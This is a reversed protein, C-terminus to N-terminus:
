YGILLFETGAAPTATFGGTLTIVKTTGNYASVKKVQHILAGNIFLVLCDKWYDTVTEARDTKFVTTSNGADAVVFGHPRFYITGDQYPPTWAAGAPVVSQAIEGESFVIDLLAM